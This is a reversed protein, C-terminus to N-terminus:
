SGEQSTPTLRAHVPGQSLWGLSRPKQALECREKQAGLSVDGFGRPKDEQGQMDWQGRM